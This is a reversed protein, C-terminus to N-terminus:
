RLKQAITQASLALIELNHDIASLVLAIHDLAQAMQAHPDNSALLTSYPRKVGTPGSPRVRPISM